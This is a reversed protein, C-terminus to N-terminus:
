ELKKGTVDYRVGNRIIIVHDDEILKYVEGRGKELPSPTLIVPADLSGLHANPVYSVEGRGKELPSPTLIVGDETEFRLAGGTVDSQITLFYLAEGNTIASQDNTIPSAM